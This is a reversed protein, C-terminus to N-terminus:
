GAVNQIQVLTDNGGGGTAQPGANGLDVQVASPSGAYSATNSGNGGQLTEDGPGGILIDNGDGGDVLPDNGDGADLRDDGLGGQLIDNGPGGYLGATGGSDNGAGGILTDAGGNGTLTDVGSGGDLTNPNGDGTLADNGDGGTLNEIGALTDSGAQTNQPGSVGLDVALNAGPDAAPDHFSATDNGTKGDIIDDNAGGILTDNGAKGNLNDNGGKGNLLNDGISGALTDNGSGGTLNEIDSGIQDGEGVQGDDTDDDPDANVAATHVGDSYSVTDIGTDTVSGGVFVDAGLGGELLDNGDGGNLTNVGSNGILTDDASGGDLSAPLSAVASIDATDGLDATQVNIATIATPLTSPCTVPAGPLGGGTCPPTATISVMAGTDDIRYATPPQMANPQVPTIAVNNAEMPAAVYNLTGGTVSATSASATGTMGLAAIAVGLGLM